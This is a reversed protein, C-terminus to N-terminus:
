ARATATSLMRRRQYTREAPPRAFGRRPLRLFRAARRRPRREDDERDEVHEDDRVRGVLEAAAVPLRRVNPEAIWSGADNKAVTSSPRVNAPEEEDDRAAEREDEPQHADHVHRVAGEVEEAAVDGVLHLLPHRPAPSRAGASSLDVRQSHTTGSSTAMPTMATTPRPTCCSSRRQFWPWSRRCASIVIATETIRASWIM